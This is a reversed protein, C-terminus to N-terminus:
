RETYLTIVPAGALHPGVWALFKQGIASAVAADVADKSDWGIVGAFSGPSEASQLLRAGHCGPQSFYEKSADPWEAAFQEANAPDVPLQIIETIM